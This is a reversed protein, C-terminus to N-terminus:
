AKLTTVEKISSLATNMSLKFYIEELSVNILYKITQYGSSKKEGM